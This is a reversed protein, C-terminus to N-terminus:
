KRGLPFDKDLLAGSAIPIEDAEAAADTVDDLVGTKERVERNCFIDSQNGSQCLPVRGADGGADLFHEVEDAEIRAFKGLATGAFKRAALALADADSAGEGGIRRNKQHVLGEAGEIGDGTGFELAFEAGQGAAKALSDNEDGVIEAFGEKEGRADDKEFGAADDSAGRRLFKKTEVM